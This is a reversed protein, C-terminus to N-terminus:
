LFSPPRRAAAEGERSVMLGLDTFRESAHRFVTHLLLMHNFWIYACPERVQGEGVRSEGGGLFAVVRDEWRGGGAPLGMILM